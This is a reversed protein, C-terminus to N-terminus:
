RMPQAPLPEVSLPLSPIPSIASIHHPASRSNGLPLLSVGDFIAWRPMARNEMLEKEMKM